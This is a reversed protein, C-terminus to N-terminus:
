GKRLFAIAKEAADHPAHSMTYLEVTAFRDYGIESLVGTLETWNFTDRPDGPILHYHKRGPMGEVHLNWIRGKLKRIAGSVSEGLVQSHGVDLNAGLRDSGVHHITDLLEDAYELYLGPECEIGVNVGAREAVEMVRKLMEVLRTQAVDPPTDGTMKGSTISINQAGIDHAFQIVKSILKFRDERRAEEPSLLSPEFFPEPPPDKWYGFTCNANINSVALGTRELTARVRKVVSADILDPYAHPTDALIEVGTYGAKAISEIAHDLRYHTFANTSFALKMAFHYDCAEPQYLVPGIV